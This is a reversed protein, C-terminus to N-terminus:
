TITQTSCRLQTILVHFSYEDSKNSKKTVRPVSQSLSPFQGNKYDSYCLTMIYVESATHNCESM